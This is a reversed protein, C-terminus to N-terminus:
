AALLNATTPLAASNARTVATQISALDSAAAAVTDPATTVFSM